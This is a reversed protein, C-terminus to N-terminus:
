TDGFVSQVQKRTHLKCLCSIHSHPTVPEGSSTGQAVHMGDAIRSDIAHKWVAPVARASRSRAKCQGTHLSTVSRLVMHM